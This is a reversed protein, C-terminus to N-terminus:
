QLAHLIAYSNYIAIYPVKATSHKSMDEDHELSRNLSSASNVVCGRVLQPDRSAWNSSMVVSIQVCARSM